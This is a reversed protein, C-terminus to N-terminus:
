DHYDCPRPAGCKCCLDPHAPTRFFAMLASPAEPQAAAHEPAGGDVDKVLPYREVNWEARGEEDLYGFREEEGGQSGYALGPEARLRAAYSDASFSELPQACGYSVCAEVLVLECRPGEAVLDGSHPCIIGEPSAALGVWDLASKLSLDGLDVRKVECVYQAQGDRKCEEEGCADYMNMFDIVYYSGDLARRAWKGGYEPWNVDSGIDIWGKM